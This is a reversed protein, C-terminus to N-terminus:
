AAKRLGRKKIKQIVTEGGVTDETYDYYYYYGQGRRSYDMRNLVVGLLPADAQALAKTTIQLHPRLTQDMSVVLVLGDVYTSLVQVDSLGTCPPCDAIVVDFRGTLSQFMERTHSSNLIEVPNPPIPGSPMCYVNEISTPVIAEEISCAGTVVNTLGVSRSVNMKKHASPRRLDCDVLLVRKGDMAMAMALNAATTSKGDSRSASTVGILKMYRDVAAFSINSRLIRYSELLPSNQGMNASLLPSEDDMRPVATLVAAGTIREILSQDHLRCDLKEAIAAAGAAMALGVVLLIMGNVTKNPYTAGAAPRATSIMQGNPLMAQESLLLSYYKESLMEYTRQLLAVKEVRQSMLREQEPLVSLTKTQEAIETNLARSTAQAAARAAVAQSYATVLSDRIPNRGNTTEAVITQTMKSLRQQESKIQGDIAQIEPAKPQFEELLKAREANLQGIGTLIDNFQPNRAIVSSAVVHTSQGAIQREVVNVENRRAALQVQTEDHEMRLKAMHDAMAAIQADPAVIGTKQKFASLEKKAYALDNSAVAMKKATYERAHRTALNNEELNRSFYTLSISNALKAAAKADYARATVEIVDTNKKAAVNYAWKPMTKSNRFGVARTHADLSGYADDLLDQGLIVEAQTDISRGRTLAQLDSLFALDSDGRGAGTSNTVVVIKAKSEYVPRRTLTYAMGLLLVVALTVLMLSKRRYFVGLYEMIDISDTAQPEQETSAMGLGREARNSTEIEDYKITM